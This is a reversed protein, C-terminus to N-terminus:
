RQGVVEAGLFSVFATLGCQGEPTSGGEPSWWLLWMLHGLPSGGVQEPGRCAM